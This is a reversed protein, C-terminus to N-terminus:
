GAHAQRRRLARHGVDRWAAGSVRSGIDERLELVGEGVSKIDAFIGLSVWRFRIELTARARADRMGALWDTLLVEGDLRQYRRVEIM